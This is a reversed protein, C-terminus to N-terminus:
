VTARANLSLLVCARARTHAPLPSASLAGPNVCEEYNYHGDTLGRVYAACEIPAGHLTDHKGGLSISPIWAGVGAEVAQEVVAPDFISSFCAVAPPPLPSGPDTAPHPSPTLADVMARLLHTSDGPTGGGPNDATENVVVPGAAEDSASSLARSVADDPSPFSLLFEDRHEWIWTAVETALQAALSPDDKTTVVVHMGSEYVDTYPFGHFVGCEVVQSRHPGNEVGFCFENMAAAPFGADTTAGPCLIPLHEVHTTPVLAGDLLAPLLNVAEVAREFMDTHPYLHCPLMIDFVESMHDSVNGHLDFAAIIPVSAGVVERIQRALDGEMDEVGDVVGAGHLVLCVADAASERLDALLEDALTNYASRAIVGSPQTSAIVSPFIEYGLEQAAVITGALDNGEGAQEALGVFGGSPTRWGVHDDTRVAHLVEFDSLQTQGFISTAYTNTEHVIGGVFLRVM